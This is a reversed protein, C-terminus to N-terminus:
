QGPDLTGAIKAQETWPQEMWYPYNQFNRFLLSKVTKLAKWGRSNEPGLVFAM